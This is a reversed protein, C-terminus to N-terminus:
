GEVYDGEGGMCGEGALVVWDCMEIMAVALGWLIKIGACIYLLIKKEFLSLLLFAFMKM